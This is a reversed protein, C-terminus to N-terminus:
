IAPLRGDRPLDVTFTTGVGPTSEVRVTGDHAEAIGQVLTLGLGWGGQTSADASKLRRFSDFITLQEEPTLPNGWNHVSLLIRDEQAHSAVTVPEKPAGYKLANTVLNEVIRRLGREDWYGRFETAAHLWIRDGHILSLEEVTDVLVSRLECPAVSIPLTQGAKIRNADLLDQIMEDTREINEIIRATIRDRTEPRDPYRHLLEANTRAATLPNRLDHTLTSVFRERIEREDELRRLDMKSHNLLQARAAEAEKRDTSDGLVGSFYLPKGQSDQKLTGRAFIWRLAGDPRIIRYEYFYPALNSFSQQFAQRLRERDEPHILAEIVPSMDGPSQPVGFIAATAQSLTLRMTDVAVKWAGMGASELALDLQEAM